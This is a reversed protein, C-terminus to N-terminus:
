ELRGLGYIHEIRLQAVTEADEPVPPRDVIGFRPLDHLSIGARGLTNGVWRDEAWDEHSNLPTTAIVHMATRSLWYCGGSAYTFPYTGDPMPERKIDPNGGDNAAVRVGCYDATPITLRDPYIFTDDDTKLLYDYGHVYAWTCLAKTKASLADYTDLVYLPTGTFAKVDWGLKLARPIWTDVQSKLRTDKYRECTVIGILVKPFNAM